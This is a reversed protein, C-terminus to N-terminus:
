NDSDDPFGSDGTIRYERGPTGVVIDASIFLFDMETIDDPTPLLATIRQRRKDADHKRKRDNLCELRCPRVPAIPRVIKKKHKKHKKSEFPKKAREAVVSGKKMCPKKMKVVGMVRKTM